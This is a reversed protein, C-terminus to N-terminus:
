VASALNSAKDVEYTRTVAIGHDNLVANQPHMGASSVNAEANTQPHKAWDDLEHYGTEGLPSGYHNFAIMDERSSNPLKQSQQNFTHKRWSWGSSVGQSEHNTNNPSRSRGRSSLLLRSGISRLFISEVVHLKMFQAFAPMCSVILAVYIEVIICPYLQAQSWTADAESLPLIRFVLGIISAVVGAFATGFIGILQWRKTAKMNLSMLLPMPLVFIYLDLLIALSGQEVGVTTLKRYRPDYILDEWTEGPHPANFIPVLIFNVWYVLVTFVLGSYIAIRMKKDVTFIQLLLFLIAAKSFSHCLPLVLQLAFLMKIYYGSFWCAPVDWQHRMYKSLKLLLGSLTADFVLGLIACYEAIALRRRNVYLRAGVFLAGFATLLITIGILTPELTGSPNVFNSMKGPPPELAPVVCLDVGPPLSM